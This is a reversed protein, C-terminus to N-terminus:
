RRWADEVTGEVTRYVRMLEKETMGAIYDSVLRVDLGDNEVGIIEDLLHGSALSDRIVAPFFHLDRRRAALLLKRFVTRVAKRQGAQSLALDQDLIIYHWTFQKLLDVQRRARPDIRVLSSETGAAPEYTLAGVFPRILNTAFLQLSMHHENSDRFRREPYFPFDAILNLLADRYEDEDKEWEPRRGLIGRFFRYFETKDTRLRDIPIKGSRFFDLLDHIAYTIDDAWDIIEAGLCRRFKPQSRRLWHFIEKESEYFGWKKPHAESEGFGWPYKLVSDLSQRTWNLGPVSEEHEDQKGSNKLTLADSAALRTIIRFSQANGEFGDTLGADQVLKNLEVETAHGFPPHGLDHALAAAEVVDPLDSSLRPTGKGEELIRQAIRRAIQAVKLSHTLRNHFVYGHEPSIVQTIEALRAFQASYLVRDRDRQANTRQDQLLDTIYRENPDPLSGGSLDSDSAL